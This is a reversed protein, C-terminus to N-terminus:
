CTTTRGRTRCSGMPTRVGSSLQRAGGRPHVVAGDHHHPERLRTLLVFAGLVQGWSLGLVLKPVVVIYGLYGLKSLWWM